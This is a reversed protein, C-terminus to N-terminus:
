EEGRQLPPALCASMKPESVASERADECRAVSTISNNCVNSSSGLEEAVQVNSKEAAVEVTSGSISNALDTTIVDGNTAM